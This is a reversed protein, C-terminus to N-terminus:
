CCRLRATSKSQAVTDMPGRRPPWGCTSKNRKSTSTVKRRRVYSLFDIYSLFKNKTNERRRFCYKRQRIFIHIRALEPQIWLRLILQCLASPTVPASKSACLMMIHFPLRKIETQRFLTFWCVAQPLAGRPSLSTKSSKVNIRMTQVRRCGQVTHARRQYM